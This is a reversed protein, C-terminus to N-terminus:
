RNGHQHPDHLGLRGRGLHEFCERPSGSVILGPRFRFAPGAASDDLDTFDDLAFFLFWVLASLGSMPLPRHVSSFIMVFRTM